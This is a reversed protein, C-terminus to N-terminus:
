NGSETMISEITDLYRKCEITRIVAQDRPKALHELIGAELYELGRVLRAESDGCSLNSAAQSLNSAKSSSTHENRLKNYDTYLNDLAITKENLKEQINTAAKALTNQTVKNNLEQQLGAAKTEAVFTDYKGQVLELHTGQVWYAIGLGVLTIGLAALMYDKINFSPM